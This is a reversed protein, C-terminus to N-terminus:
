LADTGSRTMLQALEGNSLNYEEIWVPFLGFKCGFRESDNMRDWIVDIKDESM